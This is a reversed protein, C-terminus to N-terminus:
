YVWANFLLLSCLYWGYVVSFAMTRILPLLTLQAKQPLSPAPMWSRVHQKVLRCMNACHIAMAKSTFLTFLGKRLLAHKEGTLMPLAKGELKHVFPPAWNRVKQKCAFSFLVFVCHVFTLAHTHTALPCPSQFALCM